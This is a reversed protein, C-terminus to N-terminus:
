ATCSSQFQGLIPRRRGEEDFDEGAWWDTLHGEAARVLRGFHLGQEWNRDGYKNAGYTLQSALARKAEPPILDYRIKGEDFKKGTTM